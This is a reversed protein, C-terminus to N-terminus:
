FEDHGTVQTVTFIHRTAACITELAHIPVDETSYSTRLVQVVWEGAALELTEREFDTPPRAILTEEAHGFAHGLSELASQLSPRVFGPEAIRTGAFLDARFYSTAIRVPVDSATLLKRRAIVGTGAAVRLGEAIHEPAPEQGVYLMCRGAKLGQREAEALFLSKSARVAPETPLARRVVVPPIGTMTGETVGM